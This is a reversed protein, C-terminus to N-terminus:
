VTVSMKNSKAPVLLFDIYPSDLGAILLDCVNHLGINRLIVVYKVSLRSYYTMSLPVLQVM